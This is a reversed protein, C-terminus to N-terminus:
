RRYRYFVPYLDSLAIVAEPKVISQLVITGLPAAGTSTVSSGVVIAEGLARVIQSRISRSECLIWYPRDNVVPM